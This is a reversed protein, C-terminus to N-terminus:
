RFRVLERLVTAIDRSVKLLARDHAAVLAGFGEGDV